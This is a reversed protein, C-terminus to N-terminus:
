PKEEELPMDDPLVGAVPVELGELIRSRAAGAAGHRGLLRYEAGERVHVEIRRTEPDVVWCEDVGGEALVELRVKM